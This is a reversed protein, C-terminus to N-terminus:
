VIQPRIHGDSCIKCKKGCGQHWGFWFPFKKFVKDSGLPWIKLIECWAEQGIAINPPGVKASFEPAHGRALAREVSTIHNMLSPFYVLQQPPTFYRTKQVPHPHSNQESTTPFESIPLWISLRVPTVMSHYVELASSLPAPSWLWIDFLEHSWFIM